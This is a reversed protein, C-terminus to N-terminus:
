GFSQHGQLFLFNLCWVVRVCRGQHSVRYLIQRCHLLYLLYPILEQTPLIGPSPFPLGSWYEHRSFEM